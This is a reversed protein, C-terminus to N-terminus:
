SSVGLSIVTLLVSQAFVCTCSGMKPLFFMGSVYFLLGWTCRMCSANFSFAVGM